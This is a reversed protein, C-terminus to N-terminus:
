KGKMIEVFFKSIRVASECFRGKKVTTGTQSDDCNKGACSEHLVNGPFLIQMM